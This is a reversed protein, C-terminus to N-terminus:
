KIALSKEILYTSSIPVIKNGKKRMKDFEVKIKIFNDFPMYFIKQNDGSKDEAYFKFKSNLEIEDDNTLHIFESLHILTINRKKFEDRIFNYTTSKFLDSSEDVVFLKAGSFVSAINKISNKLIYKHSKPDLKFQSDEIDDNILVIYEKSYNALKYLKSAVEEDPVIAATLKYPISLFSNFDNESLDFVDSIVFCLENRKRIIKEDPILEVLLKLYENSYIRIETAGYFHKEEAVFSTIDNEIKRNFDKIILPIPLDVPIKVNVKREISDENAIKIKSYSIWEQEIGFDNLVSLFISDLQRKSFELETNINKKRKTILDVAANVVLILIAAILLYNTYKNKILM